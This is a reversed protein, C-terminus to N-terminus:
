RKRWSELKALAIGVWHDVTRELKILLGSIARELLSFPFGSTSRYRIPRSEVSELLEYFQRMLELQQRYRLDSQTLKTM